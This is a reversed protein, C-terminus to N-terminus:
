SMSSSLSRLGSSRGNGNRGVICPGPTTGNQHSIGPKPHNTHPTRRSAPARRTTTVPSRPEQHDKPHRLRFIMGPAASTDTDQGGFDGRSWNAPRASRSSPDAASGARASDASTALSDLTGSRRRRRPRRCGSTTTSASAAHAVSTTPPSETVAIQCHAARAECSLSARRPARRLGNVPRNRTGLSRVKRRTSPLSSASANSAAIPPQAASTARPATGAGTTAAVGPGGSRSCRRAVWRLTSCGAGSPSSGAAATSPLASRPARVGSPPRTNRTAAMSWAM